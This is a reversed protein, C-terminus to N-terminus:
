KVNKVREIFERCELVRAKIAKIVKEDREVEFVKLRLNPPLHSYTMEAKVQDHLEKPVEGRLGQAWSLRRMEAQMIDIPADMLCYVLYAKTFGTLEMYAQLQYDYGKTPIETDFLPFSYCDYSNKIDIVTDTDEILIDPTGTFYDDEFWEDNKSVTGWGLHESAYQIAEDEMVIGKETYKNKFNKRRDYLQEKMWNSCFTEGTKGLGKIGMIDGIGSCRIKFEKLQKIEQQTVEQLFGDMTEEM